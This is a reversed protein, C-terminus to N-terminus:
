DHIIRALVHVQEGPVIDAKEMLVKDITISEEYHLDAGTVTARHIKSKLITRDM